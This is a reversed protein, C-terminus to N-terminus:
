SIVIKGAQIKIINNLIEIEKNEIFIGNEDSCVYVPNNITKSYKKIESVLKIKLDKNPSNTASLLFIPM